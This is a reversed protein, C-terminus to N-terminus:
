ASIFDVEPALGMRKLDSAIEEEYMSAIVIFPQQGRERVTTLHEVARVRVGAINATDDHARRDIVGTIDIQRVVRSALFQRGGAGAGWVYVPRGARVVRLLEQRPHRRDAIRLGYPRTCRPPLAIEDPEPISLERTMGRPALDHCLATWRDACAAATYGREAITRRAADSLRTWFGPEERLRRVADVFENPSDADVVLANVGHQILDGVGSRIASVIPVLGCAMGEMLAISLGEFDSLLVLAHGRAMAPMMKEPSLAGGLQVRGRNCMDGAPHARNRSVPEMGDVGSHARLLAEVEKREPGEGYLVARVGEVADAAACLRSVVRRIRKQREVLRGVYLLTLTEDPAAAYTDPVPAGYTAHLVRTEPTAVACATDRLYDSVVVMADLRWPAEGAVFVDLIDHYYPDDSHLTGVTRIGAERAFRCAFYAPASYNPVFVDPRVIDIARLLAVVSEETFRGLPVDDVGIGQAHLAARFRCPEDSGYTLYLVHPEIGRAKLLPLHRILWVNPGNIENPGNLCFLVRM